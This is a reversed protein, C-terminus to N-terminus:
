DYSSSTNGDWRQQALEACGFSRALQVLWTGM